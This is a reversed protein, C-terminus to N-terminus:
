THEFSLLLALHDSPYTYSAYSSNDLQYDALHPSQCTARQSMYSFKNTFIHDLRSPKALSQKFDDHPFGIFTGSLEGLESNLPAALDHCEQLMYNRQAVGERDDFFNYDGYVLTPHVQLSLLRRLEHASHWKLEEDLDFHTVGVTLWEATAKSQLDVFMVIKADAGNQSLTHVRVDGAFFLEPKFLLAMQFSTKLHCYRRSVVDYSLFVPDSLFARAPEASTELDRLEILALLDPNVRAILQKAAPSRKDWSTEPHAEERRAQDVNWALLTPM